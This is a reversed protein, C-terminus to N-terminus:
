DVLQPVAFCDGLVEPAQALIDERSVTQAAKDERYRPTPEFAWILAQVGDTDVEALGAAAELLKDMRGEIEAKEAGDLAFKSFAALRDLVERDM